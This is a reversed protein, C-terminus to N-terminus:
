SLTTISLTVYCYNEDKQLTGTVVTPTFSFNSICGFDIYDESPRNVLCTGGMSVNDIVCSVQCLGSKETLEMINDYQKATGIKTKVGTNIPDEIEIEPINYGEYKIKMM